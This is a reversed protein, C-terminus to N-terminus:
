QMSSIISNLADEAKQDYNQNSLHFELEDFGNIKEIISLLVRLDKFDTEKRQVNTTSIYRDFKSSFLYIPSMVKIGNVSYAFEKNNYDRDILIDVDTKINSSELSVMYDSTEKSDFSFNDKIHSIFVNRGENDYSTWFDLDNDSRSRWFQVSYYNCLLDIATGGILYLEYKSAAKVIDTDFETYQEFIAEGNRDIIKFKKM